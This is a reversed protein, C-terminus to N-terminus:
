WLCSVDTVLLLLAQNKGRYRQKTGAKCHSVRLGALRKSAAYNFHCLHNGTGELELLPIQLPHLVYEWLEGRLKAADPCVTVGTRALPFLWQYKFDLLCDTNQQAPGLFAPFYLRPLKSALNNQTNTAASQHLESWFSDDKGFGMTSGRNLVILEYPSSMPQTTNKMITISKECDGPKM